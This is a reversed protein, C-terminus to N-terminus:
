TSFRQPATPIAAGFRRDPRRRAGAPRHDHRGPRWPSRRDSAQGFRQDRLIPSLGIGAVRKAPRARSLGAAPGDRGQQRTRGPEERRLPGQAPAVRVPLRLRGAQGLGAHQQGPVPVLLRLLGSQGLPRLPHQGSPDRDSIRRPRRQHGASIGKRPRQPVSDPDAPPSPKAGGLKARPAM